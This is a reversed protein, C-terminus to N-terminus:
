PKIRLLAGFDPIVQSHQARLVAQGNQQGGVVHFFGLRQRIADADDVRPPQHDFACGSRQNGLHAAVHNVNAPAAFGIIQHFSDLM